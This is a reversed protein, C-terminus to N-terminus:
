DRDIDIIGGQEAKNKCPVLSFKTGLKIKKYLCYLISDVSSGFNAGECSRLSKAIFLSFVRLQPSQERLREGERDVYDRIARQDDQPPFYDRSNKCDYVIAFNLNPVKLVGDPFAGQKKHGMQEVEFGIARFIDAVIDEFVNNSINNSNLKKFHEGIWDQWSEQTTTPAQGNVLGPWGAPRTVGLQQLLNIIQNSEVVRVLPTHPQILNSAVNGQNGDIPQTHFYVFENDTTIEIIKMFQFPVNTFDGNPGNTYIGIALLPCQTQLENVNVHTNTIHLLYRAHQEHSWYDSAWNTALILIDMNNGGTNVIINENLQVNYLDALGPNIQVAKSYDEKAGVWDNLMEEKIYGRREYAEALNPNCEIVLTYAEIAGIFDGEQYKRMGLQMYRQAINDQPETTPVPINLNERELEILIIAEEPSLPRPTPRIGAWNVNLQTHDNYFIHDNREGFYFIDRTIEVDKKCYTILREFNGERFWQVAQKGDAWKHQHLTARAINDLSIMRGAIRRVDQFIDFTHIQSFDTNPFYGKLM